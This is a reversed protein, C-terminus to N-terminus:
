LLSCLFALSEKLVEVNQDNDCIIATAIAANLSEAKGFRPITIKDTVFPALESSIGRSKM